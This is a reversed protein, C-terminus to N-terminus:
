MVKVSFLFVPTDNQDGQLYPFIFEVGDRPKQNTQLKDNEHDYCVPLFTFKLNKDVSIKTLKELDSFSLPAVPRGELRTETNQKKSVALRFCLWKGFEEGAVTFFYKEDVTVLYPRKKTIEGMIEGNPRPSLDLGCFSILNWVSYEGNKSFLCRAQDNPQKAREDLGAPDPDWVLLTKDDDVTIGLEKITNFKSYEQTPIRFGKGFFIQHANSNTRVQLAIPKGLGFLSELIMSCANKGRSDKKTVIFRLYIVYNTAMNEYMEYLAAAIINGDDVVQFAKWNERRAYGKAEEVTGTTFEDDFIKWFEGGSARDEPIGEKLQM